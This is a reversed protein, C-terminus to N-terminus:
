EKGGTAAVSGTFYRQFLVLILMPILSIFMAGAM